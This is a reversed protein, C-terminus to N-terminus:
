DILWITLENISHIRQKIRNTPQTSQDILHYTWKIIHKYISDDILAGIVWNTSWEIRWDSLKDIVSLTSREIRRKTLESMSQDISEDIVWNTLWEIIRRKTLENISRDNIRQNISQNILEDISTLQQTKERIEVDIGFGSDWMPDVYKIVGPQGNFTIAISTAIAKWRKKLTQWRLREM